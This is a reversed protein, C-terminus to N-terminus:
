LLGRRSSEKEAIPQFVTNWDERTMEKSQVAPTWGTWSWWGDDELDAWLHAAGVWRDAGFHADSTNAVCLDQGDVIARLRGHFARGTKIKTKMTKKKAGQDVLSRHPPPRPITVPLRTSTHTPVGRGPNPLDPIRPRLLSFGIPHPLPLHNRNSRCPAGDHALIRV